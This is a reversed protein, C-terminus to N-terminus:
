SLDSLLKTEDFLNFLTFCHFNELVSLGNVTRSIIHKTSGIKILECLNDKVDIPIQLVYIIDEEM